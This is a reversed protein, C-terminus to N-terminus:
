SRDGGEWRGGGLPLSGHKAITRTLTEMGKRYHDPHIDETMGMICGSGDGMQALLGVTFDEIRSAPQLFIVQPFNMWLVKGRWAERAEPVPLNGTPPPTFAEIADLKTRAILDRLSSLRGDMHSIVKKGKRHLIRCYRDYYPLCYREFLKRPVIIEDINDGIRIIEAPSDGIIRYMDTYSRDLLEMLEEVLAPNRHLHVTFSKYGMYEVILRMMPTYAGGSTAIGDGGLETDIEIFQDYDEEYETNEVIFKLVEADEDTKVPHEVRWSGGPNQFTLNLRRRSRLTGVPTTTETVEHDGDIRSDNRVGPTSTRHVGRRIELGLGLNRLKREFEGRPLFNSYTLQPLRDPMGGDLTTFVRERIDM